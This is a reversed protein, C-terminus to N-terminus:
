EQNPYSVSHICQTSAGSLACRTSVNFLYVSTGDGVLASCLTLQRVLDATYDQAHRRFAESIVSSHSVVDATLGHKEAVTFKSLLHRAFFADHLYFSLSPKQEYARCRSLLRRIYSRKGYYHQETTGSGGSSLRARVDSDGYRSWPYLIPWAAVELGHLDDHALLRSTKEYLSTPTDNKIIAKHNILISRHMCSDVLM